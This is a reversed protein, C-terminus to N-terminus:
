TETFTVRASFLFAPSTGSATYRLRWYPLTLLFGSTPTGVYEPPSGGAAHNNTPLGSYSWNQMDSSQEIYVTLSPTTGKRAILITELMVASGKDTPTRFTESHQVTISSADFFINSGVETVQM